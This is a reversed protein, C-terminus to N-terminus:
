RDGREPNQSDKLWNLVEERSFYVRGGKKFCPIRNESTMRYVTSRKLDLLLACQDVTILDNKEPSIERVKKELSEIQRILADLKENISEYLALLTKGEM